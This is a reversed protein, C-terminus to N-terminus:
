ALEGIKLGTPKGQSSLYAEDILKAIERNGSQKGCHCVVLVEVPYNVSQGTSNGSSHTPSSDFRRHKGRPLNVTLQLVALQQRKGSIRLCRM